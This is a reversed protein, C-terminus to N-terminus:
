HGTHAHTAEEAISRVQAEVTVQGAQEFTLVLPLTAGEVLPQHLQSLMVHLGGPEATVTAGAPVAVAGAPRMRAQGDEHLTRHLEAQAAANSSVSLLSDDSSGHNTITFYAAGVAAGAPTARAWARGVTIGSHSASAKAEQAAHAEQGAGAHGDSGTHATM